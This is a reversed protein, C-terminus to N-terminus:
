VVGLLFNQSSRYSIISQGFYKWVPLLTFRLKAIDVQFYTTSVVLRKQTFFTGNRLGAPFKTRLFYGRQTGRPLTIITPLLHTPKNSLGGGRSRNTTCCDM